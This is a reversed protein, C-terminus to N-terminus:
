IAQSGNKKDKDTRRGVFDVGFGEEAAYFPCLRSLSPPPLAACYFLPPIPAARWDPTSLVAFLHAIPNWARALRENMQVIPNVLSGWTPTQNAPETLLAALHKRNEALITDIAPEAHAPLIRDFAPLEDTGPPLLLPNQM